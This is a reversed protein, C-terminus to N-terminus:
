VCERKKRRSILWGDKNVEYTYDHPKFNSFQAYVQDQQNKNLQNFRLKSKDM